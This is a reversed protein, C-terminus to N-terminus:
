KIDRAEVGLQGRGIQGSMLVSLIDGLGAKSSHLYLRPALDNILSIGQWKAEDFRARCAPKL